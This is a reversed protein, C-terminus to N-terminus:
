AHGRFRSLMGYTDVLGHYAADFAECLAEYGAAQEPRPHFVQGPAIFQSVVDFGAFAGIGVGGCVAAGMSTAENADPPCSLKRQWIDALIQMWLQSRVGGGIMTVTDVTTSLSLLILRLNYGVGELVARAMDARTTKASLGIFAGRADLNWRPSREGLPYPLYLLGGAGPKSTEALANMQAYPSDGRERAAMAEEAFLTDRLWQYSFGAAQMTGNPSYLTADPHVWNFTRLAPDFVPAESVTSIWSSTGLVCYAGGPRVIGAGVCACSGDGGGIVVPTGALLGTARAADPLVGGAVDTSPHAEPLLAPDIGLASLIEDSWRRKILDFLNTGCADSYDTVFAGTLKHIIYDKANLLKHSRAYLAPENARVWLLKAASYSAGIRHGTIRYVTEMGLLDQMRLAEAEARTDAWILADRLPEGAADVLVCGMMQGSFSVCAIEEARVGSSQLLRRTSECVALWWDEPHQEVYGPKPHHTEYPSFYSACLRGDLGYLTAKNGSTGLDHALIYM